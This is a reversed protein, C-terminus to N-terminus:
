VLANNSKKQQIQVITTRKKNTIICRKLDYIKLKM